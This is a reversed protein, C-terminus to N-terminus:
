PFFNDSGLDIPSWKQGRGDRKSYRLFLLAMYPKKFPYLYFSLFLLAM